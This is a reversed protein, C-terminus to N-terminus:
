TFLRRSRIPAELSIEIRLEQVYQPGFLGKSSIPTCEVIRKSLIPTGRVLAQIFFPCERGGEQIYCPYGYWWSHRKRGEQIFCPCVWGVKQIFSPYRRGGKQILCTYGGGDGQFLHVGWGMPHFLPIFTCTTSHAHLCSWMTHSMSDTISQKPIELRPCEPNTLDSTELNELWSFNWNPHFTAPFELNTLDSIEPPSFRSNNPFKLDSNM